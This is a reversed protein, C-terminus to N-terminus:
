IGENGTFEFPDYNTESLEDHNSFLEEDSIKDRTNENEPAYDSEWDSYLLIVATILRM